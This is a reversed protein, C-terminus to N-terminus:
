SAVAEADTVWRRIVEGTVNVRGATREALEAAISRWSPEGDSRRRAAWTVVDEGILTSALAQRPTADDAIAVSSGRHLKEVDAPDFLNAGTRGPLRMAVPLRGSAVWRNVTRPMVGFRTAVQATTLLEAPM